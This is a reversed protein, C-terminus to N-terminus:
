SRAEKFRQLEDLSVDYWRALHIRETSPPRLKYYTTGDVMVNPEHGELKKRVCQAILEDLLFKTDSM